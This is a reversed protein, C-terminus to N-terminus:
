KCCNYISCIKLNFFWVRLALTLCCGGTRALTFVVLESCRQFPVKSRSTIGSPKWFATRTYASILRSSPLELVTHLKRTSCVYDCYTREKICIIFVEEECM